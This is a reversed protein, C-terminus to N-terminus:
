KLADESGIESPITILTQLTQLKQPDIEKKESQLQQLVAKAIIQRDENSMDLFRVGMGRPSIRDDPGYQNSFVVEVAAEITYESDPVNLSMDLIEHLKPPNACRIFAGYPSLKLTVGEISREDSRIFVPWKINARYLQKISM